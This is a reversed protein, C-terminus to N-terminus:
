IGQGRLNNKFNTYILTCERRQLSRHIKNKNNKNIKIKQNQGFKKNLIRYNSLVCKFPRIPPPPFPLHPEQLNGLFHWFPLIHGASDMQKPNVPHIASEKCLCRIEPKEYQSCKSIKTQHCYSIRLTAYGSWGRIALKNTYASPNM